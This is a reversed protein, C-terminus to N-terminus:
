LDELYEGDTKDKIIKHYNNKHNLYKLGLSKNSLLISLVKQEKENLENAKLDEKTQQQKIFINLTHAKSKNHRSIALLSLSKNCIDCKITKGKVNKIYYTQNYQRQMVPLTRKINPSNNPTFVVENNINDISIENNM